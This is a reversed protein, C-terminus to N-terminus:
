YKVNWGLANSHGQYKTLTVSVVMFVYLDIYLKVFCHQSSRSCFRRLFLWFFFIIHSALYVDTVEKSHVRTLLSTVLLIKDIYAGVMCLRFNILILLQQKKQHWQRWLVLLGLENLSWHICVVWLLQLKFPKVKLVVSFVGVTLNKYWATFEDSWYQNM